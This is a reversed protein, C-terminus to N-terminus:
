DKVGAIINQGVSVGGDGNPIRGHVAFRLGSSRVANEVMRMIPINYSVGGTLGITEIGGSVAYEAAADVMTELVSNVFSSALIGSNHTGKRRMDDMERLAEIFMVTGDEKREVPFRIVADEPSLLPELRMAPEGDYTRQTGTGFIYSLADLLRGMSTTQPSKTTLKDFIEAERDSIGPVPAELLAFALRRPDKTAADGGILPFRELHAVRKFDKYTAHLVEGGWVDGDSGYGMGDLTLAVVSDLGADLILSAAHAWHHQVEMVESGFRSAFELGIKRTPYHPHLDVAVRDVTEVGNIKLLHETAGRLFDQVGAYNTNGIYQSPFLTSRVSLSSTVNREAGFSLVASSYPVSFGSPVFGRSRRIFMANEGYPIVLSDDVRNVIDRNHLLYADAGLTLAEENDLIIPEGPLNASTMILADHGELRHFILHQVPTYPLYLGINGLGPSIEEPVGSRKKLLVIPRQPSLLLREADDDIVAYRRAAEMDRVMVAFPKAERRYWKRLKATSELTCTIHMGGWSKVVGIRGEELLRAFSFIPDEAQLVEGDGGYLTYQPGDDPCSITQAHFRRNLPDRYENLCDDCLPFPAMATKDRDYPLDSIVSFRAGCNTCNIFPYMYRRDEPDFLEALCDDCLAIDPPLVSEREGCRSEIIRFDDYRCDAEEYDVRDIRALPPLQEKLAKLFADADGDICVEVNSGNNRVYGRLGLESAVRFVTPRFGVGQVVGYLYLRM